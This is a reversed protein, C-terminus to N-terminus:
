GQVEDVDVDEFGRESTNPRMKMEILHVGVFGSLCSEASGLKIVGFILDWASYRM